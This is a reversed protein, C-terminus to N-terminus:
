GIGRLADTQPQPQIEAPLDDVGVPTLNQGLADGFLFADTGSVSGFADSSIGVLGPWGGASVTNGLHM